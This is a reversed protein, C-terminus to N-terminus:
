AASGQIFHKLNNYDKKAIIVFDLETEYIGPNIQRCWGVRCFTTMRGPMANNFDLSSEIINGSHFRASSVIRIGNEVMKRIVAKCAGAFKSSEINKLMLTVSKHKM